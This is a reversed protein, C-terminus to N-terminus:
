WKVRLGGRVGWGSLDDGFVADGKIFSSVNGNRASFVNMGLSVQGWVDSTSDDFTFTEGGSVVRAEPTGSLNGWLSAIAFPEIRFNDTLVSTGARVALRGRLNHGDDFSVDNGDGAYGDLDSRVYALTAMPELFFSGADMRYGTDVRFGYNNADLDDYGTANTDYKLFQANFLADVFLGGNLYTAAVGAQGGKVDFSRGIGRYDLDASVYGGFASVILRDEPAFVGDFSLDAGALVDVVDLDRDLDFAYSRGYASTSAGGDRDIENYSARIWFAPASSSGGDGQAEGRMESRLDAARDFWTDSTVHWIDQAATVLQPLVFAGAGAFSRLEFTDFTGGNRPEYFLDYTFLGADIPGDELEFADPAVSGRVEVVTIGDSNYSGAGGTNNVTVHTLGSVNGDVRFVDAPSGAGGLFVDVGLGSAASYDLGTGGLTNAVTFRDGAGGDIMSITGFNQLTELNVFFVNEDTSGDVATLIVAGDRNVVTDNGAGFDSTLRAQFVGGDMNTFSDAEDTLDVYGVVLGTNEVTGAAGDVDIALLNSSSIRGSNRITTGTGSLTTIGSATGLVQGANEVLVSGGAGNTGVGAIGSVGNIGAGADGATGTTGALATEVTGTGAQPGTAVGAAGGLGGAATGGTGIGGAATGGTGTGGASVALIGHSGAGLAEVDGANRVIVNGGNGGMGNGGTGGSGGAADGGAGGDGGRGGSSPSVFYAAAPNSSNLTANGGAGGVGGDASGGTAAGGDASGGTGDGGQSLAYIGHSGSGLTRIDGANDVTVIGADGGRGNGGIGGAGGVADGGQGGNGGRSADGAGVRIDEASATATGAAWGGDGGVGGDASGGTSSGGNASGGVASGGRSVAYIGHAGDGGTSLDGLNAVSAGTGAGGAAAGGQGGTGGVADGGGESLRTEVGGDGGTGGSGGSIFAQTSSTLTITVSGGNRGGGGDSDGGTAVGGNAGGGSAEAGLSGAQLAHSGSGSTTVDALNALAAAGGAGGTAAGGRGGSGGSVDGGSGGVGGSSGFSATVALLLGSGQETTTYNSSGTWEGGQASGGTAAGGDAAGGAAAGGSSLVSVGVATSGSTLITGFNTLGVSGGAGGTAEGGDGGVGGAAAGAAGGSAGAAGITVQIAINGAAAERIAVVNGTNGAGGGTADGGTAAGGFASGGTGKGGASAAAIGSAFDGSTTVDGRNTAEIGGGVGGVGSGGAGGVGGAASGATGGNGGQGVISVSATASDEGRAAAGAGFDVDGGHANGGVV